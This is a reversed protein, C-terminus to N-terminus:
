FDVVKENPPTHQLFNSPCAPCYMNEEFWKESIIRVKQSYSKYNKAVEPRLSLKM